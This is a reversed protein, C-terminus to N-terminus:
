QEDVGERLSTGVGVRGEGLGINGSKGGGGTCTGPRPDVELLNERHERPIPRSCSGTGQEGTWLAM